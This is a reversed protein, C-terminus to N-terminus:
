RTQLTILKVYRIFFGGLPPKKILANDQIDTGEM